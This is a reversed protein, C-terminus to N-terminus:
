RMTFFLVIVLTAFLYVLYSQVQGNQIKRFIRAGAVLLHMVPRYAFEEVVLPIRSIYTYGRIFYPSKPNRDVILRRSPKLLFRSAVRVPKSYGSATYTMRPELTNTCAWTDVSTTKTKGGIIRAILWAIGSCVILVAAITGMAAKSSGSAMFLPSFLNPALADAGTLAQISSRVAGFAAFPFVGLMLCVATALAMGTRMTLPAECAEEAAESRPLALFSTAFARVFLMAVLAGTIALVAVALIGLMHLGINTGSFGLAFMSQFLMWEGVFGNLPPLAAISLSGFLVFLATQPMRRILGGLLNMNKTHTVSLVAGAGMFLLSKFFAHNMAHILAAMLALAAPVPQRLSCFILATGIGMFMLGINEISSYALMRKMDIDNLAHLVGFLASVAGLTLAVIGWWVPGAHLFQVVVLLFGYIATKIMVGSMLASIHSPAAPHARPLWIHLPVLGAKTGFGIFAFIFVWSKAVIPMNAANMRAFDFSGTYHQLLFFAIMLFATGIHTMVVYVFGAKQAEDQEHEYMVLFYSVISMTEWALLFTFVNGSLVVWAMAMLFLLTGANLLALSKRGRYEAAYGIAYISVLLGIAGTMFLFFAAFASQRVVIDTFTFAGHFLVAQGPKASFGIIAGAMLAVNGLLACVHALWDSLKPIRAFLLASAAGGAFLGLAGLLILWRYSEAM